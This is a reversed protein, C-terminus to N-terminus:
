NGFVQLLEQRKSSSQLPYVLSSGSDCRGIPLLLKRAIKLLVEIVEEDQVGFSTLDHDDLALRPIIYSFVADVWLTSLEPSDASKGGLEVLSSCLEANTLNYRSASSKGDFSHLPFHELILSVTKTVSSQYAELCDDNSAKKNLTGKKKRKMSTNQAKIHLLSPDLSERFLQYYRNSFKLAKVLVDLTDLDPVTLMIGKRDSNSTRGTQTLELYKVRLTEVLTSLIVAKAINGDQSQALSEEIRSIHEDSSTNPSEISDYVHMLPLDFIGNIPRLSVDALDDQRQAERFILMSNAYASGGQLFSCEGSIYISPMMTKHGFLENDKLTNSNNNDELSAKLLLALSLITADAAGLSKFGSSLTSDTPNSSSNAERKRKKENKGGGVQKPKTRGGFSMSSLLRELSPLFLDVHKGIEIKLAESGSVNIYDEKLLSFSQHSTCSAMMGVLLAGDKRISRDLSNLASLAYACLFPVFPVLCTLHSTVGGDNTVKSQVSLNTLIDGFLQIALDRVDGDEDLWCRCMNPLLTPLNSELISIGLNYVEVDESNLCEGKCALSQVADRIGKLSSCRVTPAHHRLSAQLTSLANGRSSQLEMRALLSSKVDSKKANKDLSTAQSRVVVSSTKFSTDTANLKAPARKGVKAKPRKAFDKAPQHTSPKKHPAMIFSFKYKIHHHKTTNKNLRLPHTVM